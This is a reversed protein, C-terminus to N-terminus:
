YGYASAYEEANSKREDSTSSADSAAARSDYSDFWENESDTFKARLEPDGFSYSSSSSDSSSSRDASERREQQIKQNTEELEKKVDDPKVYSEYNKRYSELQKQMETKEEEQQNALNEAAKAEAEAKQALEEAEKAAAATREAEKRAAERAVSASLKDSYRDLESEFAKQNEAAEAAVRAVEAAIKANERDVLAKKADARAIRARRRNNILRSQVSEKPVSGQDKNQLDFTRKVSPGVDGLKNIVPSEEIRRRVDRIISEKTTAAKNLLEDVGEKMSDAFKKAETVTKSNAIKDEMEIVFEKAKRMNETFLGRVVEVDQASWEKNSMGLDGMAAGTKAMQQNIEEETTKQKITSEIINNLKKAAEKIDGLTSSEQLEKQLTDTALQIPNMIKTTLDSVKDVIEVVRSEEVPSVVEVPEVYRGPTVRRGVAHYAKSAAGSIAGRVRKTIPLQPVPKINANYANMQKDINAAREKDEQAAQIAEETYRGPTVRRGVADYITSAAGSIAGKVRETIPLQPVPKINANYANMQKDINAAREKDEQAAQIAEETYRGPTVRRGVADYITSAAGSIAGKVRETIPLQPVPKINANYANMQKDINAAREKDEQAAQIAEETYRGPTVRRGVAHYAKSAAGSIAGKVSAVLDSLSATEIGQQAHGKLESYEDSVDQAFKDGSSSSHSAAKERHEGAYQPAQKKMFRSVYAAVDTNGKVANIIAKLENNLLGSSNGSWKISGKMDDNNLLEKISDIPSQDLPEQARESIKSLADSLDHMRQFDAVMWPTYTKGSLQAIEEKSNELAQLVRSVADREGLNSLYNKLGIALNNYTTVGKNGRGFATKYDTKSNLFTGFTQPGKNGWSFWSKGKKSPTVVTTGAGSVAFDEDSKESDEPLEIEVSIDDKDSVRIDEEIPAKYQSAESKVDLAAAERAERELRQKKTEAAAVEQFCTGILLVVLLLSAALFKKIMIGDGKIIFFTMFLIM